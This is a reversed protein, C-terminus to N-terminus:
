MGWWDQASVKCEGRKGVGKELDVQDNKGSGACDIKRGTTGLGRWREWWGKERGADGVTVTGAEKEEEREKEEPGALFTKCGRCFCVGDFQVVRGPNGYCNGCMLSALTVKKLMEERVRIEEQRRIEEKRRIKTKKQRRCQKICSWTCSIIFLVVLIGAVIWTVPSVKGSLPWSFM